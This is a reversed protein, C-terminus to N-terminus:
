APQRPTPARRSPVSGTASREQRAGLPTVRGNPGCSHVTNMMFRTTAIAAQGNLRAPHELRGFQICNLVGLKMDDAGAAVVICNSDSGAPASAFVEVPCVQRVGHESATVALSNM